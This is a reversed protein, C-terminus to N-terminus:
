SDPARVVSSDGGGVRVLSTSQLYGTSFRGWGNMGGGGGGGGGLNAREGYTSRTMRPESSQVFKFYGRGHLSVHSDYKHKPAPSLPLDNTAYNAQLNSGPQM